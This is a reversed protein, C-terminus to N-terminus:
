CDVNQWPFGIPIDIQRKAKNKRRAPNILAWIMLAIILRLILTQHTKQLKLSLKNRM